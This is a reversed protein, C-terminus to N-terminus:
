LSQDFVKGNYGRSGRTQVYEIVIYVEISRM